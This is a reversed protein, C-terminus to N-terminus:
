LMMAEVYKRIPTRFLKSYSFLKQIDPRQQRFELYKKLAKLAIEKNLFRFSDIVTRERDFIKMNVQGLRISTRGTKIDRVKVVKTLPRRPERSDHPVAIWFQRPIEDTLEYIALASILCVV